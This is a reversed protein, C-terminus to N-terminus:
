HRSRADVVLIYSVGGRSVVAATVATDFMFRNNLRLRLVSTSERYPKIVVSQLVRSPACIECYCAHNSETVLRFIILHVERFFYPVFQFDRSHRRESM